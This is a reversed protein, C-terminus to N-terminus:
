YIQRCQTSSSRLYFTTTSDNNIAEAMENSICVIKDVGSAYSEQVIKIVDKDKYGHGSYNVGFDITFYTDHVDCTDRTDCNQTIRIQTM